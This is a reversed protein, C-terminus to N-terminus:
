RNRKRKSRLFYGPGSTVMKLHKEAGITFDLHKAYFLVTTNPPLNYTNPADKRYWAGHAVIAVEAAPNNDMQYLFIGDAHYIQGM